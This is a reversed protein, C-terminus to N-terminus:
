ADVDISASKYEITGDKYHNITSNVLSSGNITFTQSFVLASTEEFLIQFALMAIGGPTTVKARVFKGSLVASEIEEYTKDCSDIEGTDDNRTYTVLFDTGGGMNSDIINFNENLDSININDTGEPLNLNFNTTHQM